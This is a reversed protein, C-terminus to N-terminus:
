YRLPQGDGQSEARKSVRPALVLPNPLSDALGYDLLRLYDLRSLDAYPEVRPYEGDLAAVVGVPLGPPFVGGQGSTVIRDGISVASASGLYRLGPRESNDGALIARQGSSEIIVPVRSNLDTVLLVRATRSGVESVRGALGDGTAAAEGRVVGNERGANIIVSKSYAGGSDAIIRATLYSVPPEPALKLLERLETNESALTLAAQRWGLLRENEEVLRANEKYVSLIKRAHDIATDLTAAPRALVDLVPGVADTVSIRVSEFVVQDVKGVVIMTVSIAVLFPVTIREIAARRAPSLRIM